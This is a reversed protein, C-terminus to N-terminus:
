YIDQFFLQLLPCPQHFKRNDKQRNVTVKMMKPKRFLYCIIILGNHKKNMEILGSYIYFAKARQAYAM